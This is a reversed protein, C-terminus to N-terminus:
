GRAVNGRAMGLRLRRSMIDAVSRAQTHRQCYASFQALAEGSAGIADARDAADELVRDRVLPLQATDAARAHLGCHEAAQMADVAMRRYTTWKGGVISVLNGCESLVAHERSV